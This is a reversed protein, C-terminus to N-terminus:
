GAGAEAPSPRRILWVTDVAFSYAVALVGAGILLGAVEVPVFPVLGLVLSVGIAACIAKRRFSPPLAGALPHWLAGALLFAYRLGGAALVWPGARGSAFAALSLGLVLLADVELDFRAGFGSVTGLRRALWGDVGDLGLGLGAAAPVAWAWPDPIDGLLALLCKRSTSMLSWLFFFNAM